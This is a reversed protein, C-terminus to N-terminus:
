RRNRMWVSLIVYVGREDQKWMVGIEYGSYKKISNAVGGSKREVVGHNFADLVAGENLGFTKMKRLASNTFIPSYGSM